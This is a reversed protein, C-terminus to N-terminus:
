PTLGVSKSIIVKKTNFVKIATKVFVTDSLKNKKKVNNEIKKQLKKIKLTQNSFVEKLINLVIGYDKKLSDKCNENLDTEWSLINENYSIFKVSNRFCNSLFKDNDNLLKVVEQFRDELTLTNSKEEKVPEKKEEITIEPISGAELKKIVTDIDELLTAERLKMITIILVFEADSNIHLLSKADSLIRFFREYDIVTFKDSNSLMAIKLYNIFENIITEIDFEMLKLILKNIDFENENTNIIHNFIQAVEKPDILGLMETIGSIQINSKCYIIAQDLLTLTDRLSGGGSRALIDLAEVEFEVKEQSLIYSLHRIIDKYAIRKFKFHQTRSLITTPLKLPDTTALIFKIYSPPEELTKLLANFAEKTLMHVEDIIFIKYKAISPQYKSQEILERIDDIKRNSAGDLEIIDIHRGENAMICNTCKECPTSTPGNDCILSKAFIRASSTKGSGRLGSFLYAHSLRNKDLALSLTQSVAEQGILSGFSIPRYKIALVQSNNIM